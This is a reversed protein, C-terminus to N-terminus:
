RGVRLLDHGGCSAIPLLRDSLRLSPIVRCDSSEGSQAVRAMNPWVSRGQEGFSERALNRAVVLISWASLIDAAGSYVSQCYAGDLIVAPTKMKMMKGTKEDIFREVRTRIRFVKGCYPVLEADFSLGRNYARSDLTELIQEYSKVRVLEGPKLDLDLRPPTQGAAIKGAKRPFPLGGWVSQFRDYFWRSM